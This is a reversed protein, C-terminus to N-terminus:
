SKEARWAGPTVGKIEKFIRSFYASDGYGAQMAIEAVPNDTKRLLYAAEGVRMENVYRSFTKGTEKKFRKSLYSPNIELEDAVAQLSLDEDLNELIYGIGRKVIYSCNVTGRYKVADCYRSFMENRLEMLDHMTRKKEIEIAFEESITHLYRPHLGGQRAAVRMITNLTISLDKASRLPNGKVRDKIAMTEGARSLFIKLEEKDGRSIAEMLLSELRYRETIISIDTESEISGPAEKNNDTKRVTAKKRIMAAERITGPILSSLLDAAAQIQRNELISLRRYYSTLEMGQRLSEIEALDDVSPVQSLFPGIILSEEGSSGALFNQYSGSQYYLCDGSDLEKLYNHIERIAALRDKELDPTLLSESTTFTINGEEDVTCTDLSVLNHLILALEKM